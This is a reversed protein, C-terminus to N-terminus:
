ANCLYQLSKVSSARLPLSSGTMPLSSSTLRTMCTSELLVLFLGTMIPSGPTPLVAMTSPNACLIILPSMGSVNFFLFTSESSRPAISAPALYLPSNSSLSFATRLSISSAAPVTIRKISSNCVITPAPLACPAISADFMSLGARALPSNRQMPAVVISSYLFYM